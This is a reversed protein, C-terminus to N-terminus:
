KRKMREKLHNKLSYDNVYSNSISTSNPDGEFLSTIQTPILEALRAALEQAAKREPEGADLMVNVKKFKGALIKLLQMDSLVKGMIAVSNKGAGYVDFVGEVINLTDFRCALEYNYLLESKGINMEDKGPNLYKPNRNMFSRAVFYIIRDDEIFPIIIRGFYKESTSTGFKWLEMEDKGIGRKKLYNFAMNETYSRRNQRLPLLKYHNVKANSLKSRFSRKRYSYDTLQPMTKIMQWIEGINKGEIEMIFNIISNSYSCKFCNVVSKGIHAGMHQKTDGCFPCDFQWNDNKLEAKFRSVFYSSFNVM